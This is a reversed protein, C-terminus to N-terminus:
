TSASGVKLMKEPAKQPKRGLTPNWEIRIEPNALTWCEGSSNLFCVWMLHQEPGYDIVGHALASENKAPIFLPLPPNLQTFM